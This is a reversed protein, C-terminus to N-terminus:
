NNDITCERDNRAQRLVTEISFYSKFVENKQKKILRTFIDDFVEALASESEPSDVYKYQIAIPKRYRRM